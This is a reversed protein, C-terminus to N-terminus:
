RLLRNFVMDEFRALPEVNKEAKMRTLAGEWADLIFEATRAPDVDAPIEGADRAQSLLDAIGSGLGAFARSVCERMAPSLDSIEQAMNGIACGRECGSQEFRERRLAYLRKLRELPSLSRDELITRFVKGSTERFHEILAQGFDEKSKFYFYFSGKPVGAADLIEKLGTRNFGQRHILEAGACLIDARVDRKM